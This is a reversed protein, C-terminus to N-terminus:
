EVHSPRLLEQIAVILEKDSVSGVTQLRYRVAAEGVNDSEALIDGLLGPSISPTIRRLRYSLQPDPRFDIVTAPDIWIPMDLWSLAQRRTWFKSGLWRSEMRYYRARLHLYEHFIKKQERDFEQLAHSNNDFVEQVTRAAQLGMRFAKLIGQSSLPDASWAADGVALCREGYLKSKVQSIASVARPAGVRRCGKLICRTRESLEIFVQMNEELPIRKDLLDGDTMFTTVLIDNQLVTSYWWGFEVAEVLISGKQIPNSESPEFFATIGILNDYRVKKAGFALAFRSNKGAADLLFEAAFTKAGNQNRYTVLWRGAVLELGTVKAAVKLDIGQSRAYEALDRDFAPRSLLFGEGYANFISDRAYLSSDGWISQVSYCRLSNSEFIRGPIELAAIFPLSEPVIHEGVRYSDYRTAELVTVPFGNQRLALATALGAPGGGLICVTVHEPEQSIEEKKKSSPIVM